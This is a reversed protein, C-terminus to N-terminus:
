PCRLISGPVKQSKEVMLAVICLVLQDIKIDIIRDCKNSFTNRKRQIMTLIIRKQNYEAPLPLHCTGYTM